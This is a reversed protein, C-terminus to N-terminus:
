YVWCRFGVCDFRRTCLGARLFSFGCLGRFCTVGGVGEGLCWFVLLM